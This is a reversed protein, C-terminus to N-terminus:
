KREEENLEDWDLKWPKDDALAEVREVNSDYKDKGYASEYATNWRESRERMIDSFIGKEAESMREWETKLDNQHAKRIDNRQQETLDANAWKKKMKEEYDERIERKEEPTMYMWEEQFAKREDEDLEDWDLKWPEDAYDEVRETDSRYAEDFDSDPDVQAFSFQMGVLFALALLLMSTKRTKM